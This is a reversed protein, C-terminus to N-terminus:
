VGKKNSRRRKKGTENGDSDIDIVFEDEDISSEEKGESKEDEKLEAKHREWDKEDEENEDVTM